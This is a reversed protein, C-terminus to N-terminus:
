KRPRYRIESVREHTRKFVDALVPHMSGIRSVLAAAHDFYARKRNANWTAPPRALIDRLNATKDAIKVAAADPGFVKRLQAAKSEAGHLDPDNTLEAVMSAVRPGFERELEDRTTGTDEITDHLLAAAIVEPDAVKGERVLINAVTVPHSIYPTKGDKRFQGLHKAAAFKAVRRIYARVAHGDRVHPAVRVESKLLLM